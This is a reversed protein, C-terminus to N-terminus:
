NESVYAWGGALWNHDPGIGGIFNVNQFFDDGPPAQAVDIRTAPSLRGPMYNPTLRHYPDVLLPDVELVKRSKSQIWTRTNANGFNGQGSSGFVGNDFLIANDFVLNGANAQAITAADIMNIGDRGYGIVVFNYLKGATGRRLMLGHDAQGEAEGWDQRPGVITMNYIQPSSRPLNDFGQDWNDAEIGRNSASNAYVQVVVFQVKGQWGETWDLQDDEGGTCYIYRAQARGGFFEINDDANLNFHLYELITKSGVGCLYLGNAERTPTFKIGSYEIRVFRMIGSDDDPVNGGYEVSEIGEVKSIGGTVNIPARGAIALGFWDGPRRSGVASSSTFVIPRSATGIARIKGGPVVCLGGLTATEGFLITGAEITLTAGSRVFVIGSLTYARRNSLTRDASIDGSLIDIGDVVTFPAYAQSVIQTATSDRLEMVYRYSGATPPVTVAAGLLGNTGFITYGALKPVTYIPYNDTGSPGVGFMDTVATTNGPHYLKEGTQLNELYVFYSYPFPNTNPSQTVKLTLREGARYVVKDAYLYTSPSKLDAITQLGYRGVTDTGVAATASAAAALMFLSLFASKRM